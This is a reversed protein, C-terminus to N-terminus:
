RGPCVGDSRVTCCPRGRSRRKRFSPFVRTGLRSAPIGRSASPTLDYIFLLDYITLNYIFQVNYMALNYIVRGDLWITRQVASATRVSSASADAEVNDKLSFMSSKRGSEGVSFSRMATVLSTDPKFWSKTMKSGVSEAKDSGSRMTWAMSAKALATSSRSVSPHVAPISVSTSASFRERQVSKM